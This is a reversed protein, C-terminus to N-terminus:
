TKIRPDLWPALLDAVLNALVALTTTVLFLGQMLTYDRTGIAQGLFYGIGPYGFISEVLMSGGVMAGLSSALGTVLPLIANRGLYQLLIRRETLGKARAVQIYDENLVGLASAKAGLIWGGIGPLSFAAVPLVAHWAADLLFDLRFSPEVDPGHAGHLPFWQLAMGFLILLLLGILFSPVAETVSAYFTLLPDLWTKRRWTVAVGLFAGIVFSVLVSLSTILLTWPLAKAIIASVPIRYTLSWGLDGHLVLNKVYTAYQLAVPETPDYNMMTAAIARAQEYSIGQSMQIQVAWTHVVDGPMQRVLIFTFTTAAVITVLSVLIRRSLFSMRPRPNSM